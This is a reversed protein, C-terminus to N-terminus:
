VTITFKGPRAGGVAQLIGAPDGALGFLWVDKSGSISQIMSPNSAQSLNWFELAFSGIAVYTIGSVGNIRVNGFDASRLAAWGLHSLGPPMTYQIPNAGAFPGPGVPSVFTLAGGGGGGINSFDIPISAGIDPADPQENYVEDAFQLAGRLLVEGLKDRLAEQQPVTFSPTNGSALIATAIDGIALVLDSEPPPVLAGFRTLTQQALASRRAMRDDYSTSSSM